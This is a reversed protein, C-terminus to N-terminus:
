EAMVICGSVHAMLWIAPISLIAGWIEPSDKVNMGLIVVVLILSGAWFIGWIWQAQTSRDSIGVTTLIYLLVGVALGVLVWMVSFNVTVIM